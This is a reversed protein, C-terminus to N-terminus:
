QAATIHIHNRDVSFLAEDACFFFFLFTFVLFDFL